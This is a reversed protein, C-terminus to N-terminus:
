VESRAQFDTSQALKGCTKCRSVGIIVGWGKSSEWDHPSCVPDCALAGAGIEADGELGAMKMCWEMTFMKPDM